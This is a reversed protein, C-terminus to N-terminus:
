HTPCYTRISSSPQPPMPSTQFASCVRMNQRIRRGVIFLNRGFVVFETQAKAKCASLGAQFWLRRILEVVQGGVIDHPKFGVQGLMFFGCSIHKQDTECIVHSRRVVVFGQRQASRSADRIPECGIVESDRWAM